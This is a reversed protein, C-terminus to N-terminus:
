MCIIEKSGDGKEKRGKRLLDSKNWSVGTQREDKWAAVSVSLPSPIAIWPHVTGKIVNHRSPIKIYKLKNFSLILVFVLCTILVHVSILWLLSESLHLHKLYLQYIM